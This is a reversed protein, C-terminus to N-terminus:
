LYARQRQSCSTCLSPARWVSYVLFCSSVGSCGHLGHTLAHVSMCGAIHDTAHKHLLCTCSPASSINFSCCQCLQIFWGLPLGLCSIPQASCLLVVYRSHVCCVSIRRGLSSVSCCTSWPPLARDPQDPKWLSFRQHIYGGSHDGQREVVDM